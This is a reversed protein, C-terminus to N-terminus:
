LNVEFDELKIWVKNKHKSRIGNCCQCICSAQYGNRAAENISKYITEEGSFIDISKIYKRTPQNFGIKEKWLDNKKFKGLSAAYKINEENTVWELNLVNNNKPNCDIHNIFPKKYKNKIFHLAVLRHIYFKQSIGKTKLIITLYDNGNNNEKLFRNKQLSYVRGYNSILYLNKLEKRCYIIKRFNEM